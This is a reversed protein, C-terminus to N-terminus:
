KKKPRRELDDMGTLVARVNSQSVGSANAILLIMAHRTLRSADMQRMGKAIDEIATALIEAPVEKGPEQIVKARAM